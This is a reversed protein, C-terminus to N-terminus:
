FIVLPATAYNLKIGRVKCLIKSEQIRANLEIPTTRPAGPCLIRSKCTLTQLM